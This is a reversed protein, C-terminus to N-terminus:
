PAKTIREPTQRKALSSHVAKACGEWVYYDDILVIDGPLVHDWFKELCIMTSEHWDGDLRLVAILTALSFAL